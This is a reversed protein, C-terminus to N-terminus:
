SYVSVWVSPFTFVSAQHLSHLQCAILKLEVSKKAYEQRGRWEKGRAELIPGQSRDRRCGLVRKARQVGAM